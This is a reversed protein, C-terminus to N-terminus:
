PSAVPFLALEGSATPISEGTMLNYVFVGLLSGSGGPVFYRDRVVAGPLWRRTPWLGDGPYSDQQAYKELSGGTGWGLAQVSVSFDQDLLGDTTWELDVWRGREGALSGPTQRFAILQMGNSFSIPPELAPFRATDVVPPLGYITDLHPGVAWLMVGAALVVLMVALGSRVRRAPIAQFALTMVIVLSPLITFVHRGEAVPSELSGNAYLRVKQWISGTITLAIFFLNMTILLRLDPRKILVVVLGVAILALVIGIATYLWGPGYGALGSSFDLWFSKWFDPLPDLVYDLPNHHETGELLLTNLSLPDRYLRINRVMWPGSVLLLGAAILALYLGWERLPRNRYRWVLFPLLLLFLITHPKCLIGIGILLGLAFARRRTVGSVVLRTLWWVIVAAAAIAAGDNSISTAIFVAQPHLVLLGAALLAWAAGTILRAQAYTAVAAILLAALGVLRGVYVTIEGPEMPLYPNRNGVLTALFYPNQPLHDPRDRLPADSLSLLAVGGYYLPPQHLEQMAVDPKIRPLDHTSKMVDVVEAHYVELPKGYPPVAWVLRWGIIAAWIMVLLLLWSPRVHNMM